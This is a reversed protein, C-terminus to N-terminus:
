TYMIRVKLGNLDHGNLGSISLYWYQPKDGPYIGEIRDEFWEGTQSNFWELLEGCHLDDYSWLDDSNAIGWRGNQYNFYLRGTLKIITIDM